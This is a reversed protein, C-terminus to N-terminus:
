GSEKIYFLYIMMLIIWQLIHVLFQEGEKLGLDMFFFAISLDKIIEKNQKRLYINELHNKTNQFCIGIFYGM